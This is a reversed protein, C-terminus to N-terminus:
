NARKFSELFADRGDVVAQFGDDDFVEVPADTQITIVSGIGHHVNIRRIGVVACVIKVVHAIPFLM